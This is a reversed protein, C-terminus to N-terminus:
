KNKVRAGCSSCKKQGDAVVEGCYDCHIEPKELEQGVVIEEPQELVIEIQRKAEKHIKKGHSFVTLSVALFFIFFVAFPIVFLYWM